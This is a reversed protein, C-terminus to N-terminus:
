KRPKRRPRTPSSVRRPSKTPQVDPEIAEPPVAGGRRRLYRETTALSKHRMTDRIWKPSAGRDAYHTGFRHRLGHLPQMGAKVGALRYARGALTAVIKESSLEPIVKGKAAPWLQELADHLRRTLIPILGTSGHKPGETASRQAILISGYTGDPQREKLRVDSWDLAFIEGRRLGADAALLIVPLTRRDVDKLAAAVLLELHEESVAEPESRQLVTVRPVTCPPAPILGEDEAVQFMQRLRDQRAAITSDALGCDRMDRAWRALDGRKLTRVIRPGLDKVVANIHVEYGDLTTQSYVREDKRRLWALLKPALEAVTVDREDAPIAGREVDVKRQQPTVLWRSAVAKTACLPSRECRPRLEGPVHITITARYGAVKSHKKLVDIHGIGGHPSM